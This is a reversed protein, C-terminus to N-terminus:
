AIHCLLGDQVTALKFRSLNFTDAGRSNLLNFLAIFKLALAVGTATGHMVVGTPAEREVLRNHFSLSLKVWALYHFPLSAKLPPHFRIPLKGQRHFMGRPNRLDMFGVAQMALSSSIEAFDFHPRM